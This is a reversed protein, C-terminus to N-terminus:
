ATELLGQEVLFQATKNMTQTFLDLDYNFYGHVGGPHVVLECHNGEATMADRFREAGIFPTVTDGTGHFQLTPPTGSKVRHLPSITQWAEGCRANGYGDASTDIVPYYLVLAAPMPSTSLDDAPDDIGDFLATGVAVHGGASSGTIVVRAPDIGLEAAHAKIYRAASRGDKASDYPTLGHKAILSYEVSIGVMGLKAFWNAYAYSKRPTGGNWGGGHIVVYCARRDTPKHGAPEFIHLMRPVGAVHKYVVTRTPTLKNERADFKTVASDM